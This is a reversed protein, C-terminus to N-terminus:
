RPTDAAQREMVEDVFELAAETMSCRWRNLMLALEDDNDDRETLAEIQEALRERQPRLLPELARDRRSLFHIKLLLLSRLDRVHPEPTILWQEVLAQAEPTARMLTRNPASDSSEVSDVEVAEHQDSQNPVVDHWWVDRGEVMNVDQGTRRLVLVTEVSPTEGTRLWRRGDFRESSRDFVVASGREGDIAVREAGVPLNEGCQRNRRDLRCWELAIKRLRM